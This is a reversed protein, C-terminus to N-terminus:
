EDDDGLISDVEDEEDVEDGVSAAEEEEDEEDVESALSSRANKGRAARAKPKPTAEEEEDDDPVLSFVDDFLEKLSELERYAAEDMGALQESYKKNIASQFRVLANRSATDKVPRRTKIGWILLGISKVKDDDAHEPLHLKSLLQCITKREDKDTANLLYKLLEIAVDIHISHDAKVDNIEVVKEPDTWDVLQMGIQSPSIMEQDEELDQHVQTLVEMVPVFIHQMRRQNLSSSYCYVPFFYSLCQRLAQNDSTEPSLYMLVLSQLITEDSIMGSLMLKAIGECAVAQVDPSEDGLVWLLFDNTRNEENSVFFDTGHVMVMDFIAKLAKCKTDEAATQVQNMFLGFSEKATGKDILSCLGICTLGQERLAPDKSRIAPVILEPLLGQFASNEHLNSNVRGLMAACLELCRMDIFAARELEMEEEEASKKTVKRDRSRSRGRSRRSGRSIESAEESGARSYDGEIDEPYKLDGVIEVVVRILDRESDSLKSMVDMCRPILHEPLSPQSLMDRVLSFMKRRGIEDAYDLNVALKCLESLMFAQDDKAAEQTPDPEEGQAILSEQGLTIDLLKNYTSQIRFALATVVPLSSELRGTDKISLCHDVFVRALFAKEPSISSWFADDLEAADLLEPRTVFISLLADEVVKSSVVDLTRLFELLDQNEVWSAVMKGAARRVSEERDGLGNRIAQERQAISMVKPNPLTALVATYVLRRLTTDTDRTRSLLDPLTTPSAPTNLLAARRVEASPDHRLVDLMVDQVSQEGDALDEDTEGAMIKSLAVVAQVRVAPEKDRARELLAERLTMFLDEDLEGLSSIMLAVLQVCRYRVSKDKAEFGRLLHSLLFVTLRSAPTDEDDDANEPQEAALFHSRANPAFRAAVNGKESLFAIFSATFKVVRDAQMIGRKVELIKDVMASFADNFAKEGTLKIGKGNPLTQTVAACQLHIKHLAVVNKRHNATNHQSQAFIPPLTAQLDPLQPLLLGPM